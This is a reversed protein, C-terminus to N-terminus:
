RTNDRWLMRGEDDLRYVGVYEDDGLGALERRVEAVVEPHFQTM